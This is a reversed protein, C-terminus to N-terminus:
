EAAGGLAFRVSLSLFALESAKGLRLSTSTTLGDRLGDHHVVQVSRLALPSGFQSSSERAPTLHVFDVARYGGLDEGLAAAAPVAVGLLGSRPARLLIDSTLPFIYSM